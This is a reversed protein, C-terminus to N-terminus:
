VLPITRPRVLHARHTFSRSKSIVQDLMPKTARPKVEFGNGVHRTHSGGELENNHSVKERTKCGSRKPTSFLFGWQAYVLSYDASADGGKSLRRERTDIVLSNETLLCPTESAMPEISTEVSASYLFSYASILASGLTLRIDRFSVLISENNIQMREIARGM